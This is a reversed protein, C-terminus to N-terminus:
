ITSSVATGVFVLSRGDSNGDRDLTNDNRDDGLAHNHGLVRVTLALSAPGNDPVDLLVLDVAVVVKVLGLVLDEGLFGALDMVDSGVGRGQAGVSEVLVDSIVVLLVADFIDGILVSELGDTGM